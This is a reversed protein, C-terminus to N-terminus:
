SESLFISMSPGIVASGSMQFNSPTMKIDGTGSEYFSVRLFEGPSLSTFGIGKTGYSENNNSVEVKLGSGLVNTWSVGDTSVQMAFFVTSVTATNIPNFNIFGQLTLLRGSTNEIKGDPYVELGNSSGGDILGTMTSPTAETQSVTIVTVTGAELHARDVISPDLAPVANLVNLIVSMYEIFEARSTFLEFGGSGDPKYLTTVIGLDYRKDSHPNYLFAFDQNDHEFDPKIQLPQFVDLILGTDNDQTVIVNNLVAIAIGM